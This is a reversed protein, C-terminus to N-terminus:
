QNTLEGQAVVVAEVECERVRVAVVDVPPSVEPLFVEPHSAELGGEEGLVQVLLISDLEM